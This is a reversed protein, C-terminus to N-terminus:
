MTSKRVEEIRERATEEDLNFKKMIKELIENIAVGFELCSMIFGSIKGELRGKEESMGMMDEIAKCFNRTEMGNAGEKEVNELKKVNSYEAIVDYAKPSMNKFYPEESVLKRMKEQNNSVKIFDVIHKLDTKFVSTDEFKRLEVINLEYDPILNKVEVPLGALDLMDHLSRPGDWAKTGAYLIITLMPSLKSTKLFGSLYEEESIGKMKKVEKSIEARQREYDAVDYLLMRVAIAYDIKEQPETGLIVYTVGNAWKKVVDRYKEKQWAYDEKDTSEEDVKVPEYQSDRDELSEPRIVQQGYFCVGNFVDAFRENDRFFTRWVVSKRM